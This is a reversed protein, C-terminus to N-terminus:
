GFFTPHELAASASISSIHQWFLGFLLPSVGPAPNQRL